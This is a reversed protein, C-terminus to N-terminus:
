LKHPKLERTQPPCQSHVASESLSWCKAEGVFESALADVTQCWLVVQSHPSPNAFWPPLTKCHSREGVSRNKSISAATRVLSHTRSRFSAGKGNRKFFIRLQSTNKSLSLLTQCLGGRTNFNEM